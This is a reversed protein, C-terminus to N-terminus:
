LPPRGEIRILTKEQDVSRTIRLRKYNTAWSDGSMARSRPDIDWLRFNGGTDASVLTSGDSSFQLDQIVESHGSFEAVPTWTKADWLIIEGNIHGTVFWKQNSSVVFKSITDNSLVMQYSVRPQARTPDLEWLSVATGENSILGIEKLFVLDRLASVKGTQFSSIVKGSLLSRWFIHGDGAGHAFTQSRPSFAGASWGERIDVLTNGTHGDVLRGGIERSHFRIAVVGNESIQTDFIAGPAPDKFLHGRSFSEASWVQIRRVKPRQPDIPPLLSLIAKDSLLHPLGNSPNWSRSREPTDSPRRVPWTDVSLSLDDGVVQTIRAGDASLRAFSRDPSRYSPPLVVQQDLKERPVWTSVLETGRVLVLDGDPSIEALYDDQVRVAHSAEIQVLVCIDTGLAPLALGLGILFVWHKIHVAKLLLTKLLDPSIEALYSKFHPTLETTQPDGCIPERPPIPLRLPSLIGRDCPRALELRAALV